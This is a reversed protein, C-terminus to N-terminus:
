NDKKQIENKKKNNLKYSFNLEISSKILRVIIEKVFQFYFINFTFQLFYKTIFKEIKFHKQSKKFVFPSNLINFQLKKKSIKVIRSKKFYFLAFNTLLLKYLSKFMTHNVHIILELSICSYLWNSNKVIFFSVLYFKKRLDNNKKFYHIRKKIFVM